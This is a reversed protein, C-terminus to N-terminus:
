LRSEDILKKLIEAYDVNVFYGATYNGAQVWEGAVRHERIKYEIPASLLAELLEVPVLIKNAM